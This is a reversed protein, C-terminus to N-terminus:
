GQARRRHVARAAGRRRRRPAEPSASRRVAYLIEADSWTSEWTFPALFTRREAASVATVLVHPTEDGADSGGYAYTPLGLDSCEWRVGEREIVHRM